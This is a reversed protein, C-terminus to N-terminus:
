LAITTKQAYKGTWFDGHNIQSKSETAAHKEVQEFIDRAEELIAPYTKLREFLWTYNIMHKVQLTFDTKAVAKLVEPHQMINEHFSKLWKGLAQGLQLCQPKLSASTATPYYKVAYSKLDISNPLYEM